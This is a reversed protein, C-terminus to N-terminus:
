KINQENVLNLLDYYDIVDYNDIQPVGFMSYNLYYQDFLKKLVEKQEITLEDPLNFVFDPVNNKLYDKDRVINYIRINNIAIIGKKTLYINIKHIAEDQVIRKDKIFEKLRIGEDILKDYYYKHLTKNEVNIRDIVGDPYIIMIATNYFDEM